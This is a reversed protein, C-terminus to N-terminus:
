CSTRSRWSSSRRLSRTGSNKRRPQREVTRTYITRYEKLSAAVLKELAATKPPEIPEAPKSIQDTQMSPMLPAKPETGSKSEPKHKLKSRDGAPVSIPQVVGFELRRAKVDPERKSGEEHGLEPKEDKGKAPGFTVALQRAVDFSRQPDGTQSGVNSTETVAKEEATLAPQRSLGPIVIDLGLTQGCIENFKHEPPAAHPSPPASPERPEDQEKEPAEEPPPVTEGHKEEPDTHVASAVIDVAECHQFTCEEAPDPIMDVSEVGGFAFEATETQAEEGEFERVIDVLVVDASFQLPIPESPTPVADIEPYGAAATGHVIGLTNHLPETQMDLDATVIGRSLERIRKKCAANEELLKDREAKLERVADKAKYYSDRLEEYDTSDKAHQFRLQEARERESSLEAGVKACHENSESLQQQLRDLKLRTEKAETEMDRLDSEYNDHVRQMQEDCREVTKALKKKYWKGLGDILELYAQWLRWIMEGREVCQVSVQRVIERFCIYYVSQTLEFRTGEDQGAEYQESIKTRMSDLWRRLVVADNRSSPVGLPLKQEGGVLPTESAERQRQLSASERQAATMVSSFFGRQTETYFGSPVRKFLDQQKLLLHVRDSPLSDATNEPRLEMLEKISQPLSKKPSTTSDSKQRTIASFSPTEHMYSVDRTTALVALKSKSFPKRDTSSSSPTILDPYRLPTLFRSSRSQSLDQSLEGSRPGGTLHPSGPSAFHPVQRKEASRAVTQAAVALSPSFFKRAKQEQARLDFDDVISYRIKQRSASLRRSKISSAAVAETGTAALCNRSGLDLPRGRLDVLALQTRRSLFLCMRERM